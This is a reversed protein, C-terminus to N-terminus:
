GGFGEVQEVAGVVDGDVLRDLLQAGTHAFEAVHVGGFQVAFGGAHRFDEVVDRGIREEAVLPKHDDFPQDRVQRAFASALGALAADLHQNGFGWRQGFVRAKHQDLATLHVIFILEQLNDGAKGVSKDAKIVDRIVKGSPKFFAGGLIARLDLRAGGFRQRSDDASFIWAGKRTGVLVNTTM